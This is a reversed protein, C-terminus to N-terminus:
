CTLLHAVVFEETIIALKLLFRELRQWRPAFGRTCIFESSGGSAPGDPARVQGPTCPAGTVQWPSSSLTGRFSGESIWLVCRGCKFLGPPSDPPVPHAPGPRDRRLGRRLGRCLRPDPEPGPHSRTRAAGREAQPRTGPSDTRRHRPAGKERLAAESSMENLFQPFPCAPNAELAPTKIWGNGRRLGFM